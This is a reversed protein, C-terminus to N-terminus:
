AARGDPNGIRALYRKNLEQPFYHKRSIWVFGEAKSIIAVDIPGAVTEFGRSVRRKISTLNVLAEAMRAMEPKPMFEVMDEIEAESSRHIAQFGEVALGDLFAGEAEKARRRLSETDEDSLDLSDILEEAITPITRHCFESIQDRLPTDLGYLFREVMERQAFPLVRAKVGERDIDVDNTQFFKLRGGVVGELEFSVLTPFLDDSGYGAVVVGTSSRTVNRKQAAARLIQGARAKQEHSGSILSEEAIREILEVEGETFILDGAGIFDADDLRDVAVSLHDLEIDLLRQAEDRVADPEDSYPERLLGTDKDIIADLWKERSNENVLELAPRLAAELSQLKIREPSHRAFDDLYQLFHRAAEPVRKFRPATMRYEKILVPLPAEMFSMDSNIMIAIPDGNTLEFLKDASDFVKHQNSGASITVASDAALAIATKNLIAVEATM